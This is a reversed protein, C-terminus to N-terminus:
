GVGEVQVEDLIVGSVLGDSVMVRWGRGNRGVIGGMLVLVMMMMVVMVMVMLVM